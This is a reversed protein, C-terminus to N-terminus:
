SRLVERRRLYLAYAGLYQVINEHSMVKLLEIERELASLMSKKREENHSNGTPLEVQKVAMLSGNTANMGLYVQGFSGAGILAGRMWRFTAKKTTTTVTQPVDPDIASTVSSEAEEEEEEEEEDDDEAEDEDEDEQEDGLDEETSDGEQEEDLVGLNSSAAAESETSDGSIDGLGALEAAAAANPFLSARSLRRKELDETIEDVTLLSANDSDRNSRSQSWVSLRSSPRSKRGGMGTGTKRTQISSISQADNNSTTDDEDESDLVISPTVSASSSQSQLSPRGVPSADYDESFRSMMNASVGAGAGDKTPLPPVVDISGRHSGASSMSFRSLGLGQLNQSDRSADWSTKGAGVGAGAGAGGIGPLSGAFSSNRRMMSKRVNNRVAKSLIKKESAANPFYDVLHTNILESPPRQGFFHRLKQHNSQIFGASPSRAQPQSSGAEASSGGGSGNSGFGWNLGSMISVTSARNMTNRQPTKQPPRPAEVESGTSPSSPTPSSPEVTTSPISVDLLNTPSTPTMSAKSLDEGFFNRLKRAKHM